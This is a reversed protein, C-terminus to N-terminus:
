DFWQGAPSLAEVIRCDALAGGDCSALLRALEARLRGLDTIRRDIADLQEKALADVRRCDREGDEALELLTRVQELPFGLERARRIFCIRALDRQGYSRYNSASRPPPSILGEREYWRVTEVSTGAAKALKGITLM